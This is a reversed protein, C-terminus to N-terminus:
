TFQGFALLTQREDCIEFRSAGFYFRLVQDVLVPRAFTVSLSQAPASTVQTAHHLALNMLGFGQLFPRKQGCLRAGWSTTHIINHDGSIRGYELGAKTGLRHQRKIVPGNWDLWSSTRKSLGRFIECLEPERSVIGELFHPPCKKVFWFDKHVRLLRDHSDSIETQMVLICQAQRPIVDYLEMKMNYVQDPAVAELSDRLEINSQLHLITSFNIKLAGLIRFLCFAGASNYYTLPAQIDKPGQAVFKQWDRRDVESFRVKATVASIDKSLDPRHLRAMGRVLESFYQPRYLPSQIDVLQSEWRGEGKIPQKLLTGLSKVYALSM